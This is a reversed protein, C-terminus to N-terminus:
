KLLALFSTFFPIWYYNSEQFRFTGFFFRARRLIRRGTKERNQNEESETGNERSNWGGTDEGVDIVAFELRSWTESDFHNKERVYLSVTPENHNGDQPRWRPNDHICVLVTM